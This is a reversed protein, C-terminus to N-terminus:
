SSTEMELRKSLQDMRLHKERFGASYLPEHDEQAVRTQLILVRAVVGGERTGGCIFTADSLDVWTAIGAGLVLGYNMYTDYVYMTYDTFDIEAEGYEASPSSCVKEPGNLKYYGVQAAPAKERKPVTFSDYRYYPTTGLM